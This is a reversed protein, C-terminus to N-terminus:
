KSTEVFKVYILKLFLFCKRWVITTLRFERLAFNSFANALIKLDVARPSNSILILLGVSYVTYLPIQKSTLRFFAMNLSRMWNVMSSNTWESAQTFLTSSVCFHWAVIPISLLSAHKTSTKKWFQIDTETHSHFLSFICLFFRNCIRSFKSSKALTIVTWCKNIKKKRGREKRLSLRKIKQKNIFNMLLWVTERTQTYKNNTITFTLKHQQQHQQACLNLIRFEHHTKWKNVLRIPKIFTKTKANAWNESVSRLNNKWRISVTHTYPYRIENATQSRGWALRISLGNWRIFLLHLSHANMKTSFFCGCQIPEFKGYIDM